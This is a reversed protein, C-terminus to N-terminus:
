TWRIRRENQASFRNPHESRFKEMIEPQM